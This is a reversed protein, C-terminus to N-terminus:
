ETLQKNKVKSSMLVGIINLFVMTMSKGIIGFMSEVMSLTFFVMVVGLPVYFYINKRNLLAYRVSVILSGIYFLSLFIGSVIGFVGIIEM